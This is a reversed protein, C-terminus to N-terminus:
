FNCCIRGYTVDKWRSAPLDEKAVFFVTNTVEVRVKLGQAIRGLENGYGHSWIDRYKPNGILHRYEMIEGTDKDLVSNLIHRPFTRRANMAVENLTISAFMMDQTLTRIQRKSRTNTAPTTEDARISRPIPRIPRM